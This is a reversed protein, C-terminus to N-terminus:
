PGSRDQQRLLKNHESVANEVQRELRAIRDAISTLREDQRVSIEVIRALKDVAGEVKAVDSTIRSVDSKVISVETKMGYYAAGAAFIFTVVSVVHGFTMDWHFRIHKVATDNTM